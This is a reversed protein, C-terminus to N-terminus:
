PEIEYDIEFDPLFIREGDRDELDYGKESKSIVTVLNYKGIEIM